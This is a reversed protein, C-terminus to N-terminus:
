THNSKVRSYYGVISALGQNINKLTTNVFTSRIDGIKSLNRPGLLIENAEAAIKIDAAIVQNFVGANSVLV